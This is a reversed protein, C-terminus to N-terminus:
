GGGPGGGGGGGLLHHEPSGRAHDEGTGPQLRGRHPQLRGAPGRDHAAASRHAGDRFVGQIGELPRRHQDRLGDARDGGGPGAGRGPLLRAGYSLAQAMKGIATGEPVLVYCPLLAKSAYAAVSAAMNGTSAVCIAKAGREKAKSLEVMSGRDKFVGTPNAGENKIHLHAYGTMEGLKGCRYLPTGGEDLSVVLDLNEIPYFDLYKMAKIPSNRLSYRNLRSRIYDYDYRVDLPSRCSPCRAPPEEERVRRGCAICYLEYFRSGSKRAQSKM